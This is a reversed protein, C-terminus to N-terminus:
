LFRKAAQRPSEGALYAALLEADEGAVTGGTLKHVWNDVAELWTQRRSRHFYRPSPANYLVVREGQREQAVQGNVYAM